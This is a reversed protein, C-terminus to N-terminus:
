AEQDARSRAVAKRIESETRSLMWRAVSRESAVDAAAHCAAALVARCVEQAAGGEGLRLEAHRFVRPFWRDFFRDFADAQALAIGRLDARSDGLRLSVM